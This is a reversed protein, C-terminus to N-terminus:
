RTHYKIYVESPKLTSDVDIVTTGNNTPIQVGAQAYSLTDAYTSIKMLPENVIGTTPTALVYWVTVPTGAAYQQQLYQKFTALTSGVYTIELSLYLLTHNGSRAAVIRNYEDADYASKWNIHTSKGTVGLKIDDKILYCVQRQESISSSEWSEQGTLVLKKIKRTTQVEGLYVPTTQGASSISIEFGYPEYPLATSGSNLMIKVESNSYTSLSDAVFTLRNIHTAETLTFTIPRNTQCNQAVITGGDNRIFIRDYSADFLNFGMVSLTYSGAELTIDVPVTTSTDTQSVSKSLIFSAVGEVQEVSLVSGVTQSKSSYLLNGTREGCGQPQIPNNPAPTGSQIMNGSILYDLLPTGAAPFTLPPVGSLEAEGGSGGKSIKQAFLATYM